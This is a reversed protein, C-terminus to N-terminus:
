VPVARLSESARAVIPGQTAKFAAVVAPDFHLGSERAIQDSAHGASIAKRQPRNHMM